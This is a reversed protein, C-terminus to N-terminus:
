RAHKQWHYVLKARKADWLKVDRDKSGTLFFGSHAKPIYWLMGNGNQDRHKNHLGATSSASFKQEDNDSNKHKKPIRTAIYRFDHVGVDGGKGGTVILPSVSSSLKPPASHQLFGSNWELGVFKYSLVVVLQFDDADGSEGIRSVLISILPRNRGFGRKRERARMRLIWIM